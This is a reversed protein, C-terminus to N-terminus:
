KQFLCVYLKNKGPFVQYEVLDVQQIPVKEYCVMAPDEASPRSDDQQLLFGQSFEFGGRQQFIVLWFRDESFEHDPGPVTPYIQPVQWNLYYDIPSTSTNNVHYVVDGVQDRRDIYDAAIRFNGRGVMDWQFFYPYNSMLSFVIMAVIPIYTLLKTSVSDWGISVIILFVPLLFILYNVRAEDFLPFGMVSILWISLYIVLSALVFSYM